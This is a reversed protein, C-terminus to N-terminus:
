RMQNAEFPGRRFSRFTAVYKLIRFQAHEWQVQCTSKNTKQIQIEPPEFRVIEPKVHPRALSEQFTKTANTGLDGRCRGHPIDISLDLCYIAMANMHPFLISVTNSPCGRTSVPQGVGYQGASVLSQLKPHPALSAVVQPLDTSSFIMHKKVTTSQHEWLTTSARMPM